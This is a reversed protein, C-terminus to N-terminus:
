PFQPAEFGLEIEKDRFRGVPITYKFSLFSDGNLTVVYRMEELQQKLETIGINM